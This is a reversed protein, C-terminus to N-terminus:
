AFAALIADEDGESLRHLFHLADDDFLSEVHRIAIAALGGLDEADGVLGEVVLRLLVLGGAGLVLVLLLATQYGTGGPQRAHVGACPRPAHSSNAGSRSLKPREAIALFRTMTSDGAFAFVILLNM